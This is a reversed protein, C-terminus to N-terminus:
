FHQPAPSLGLVKQMIDVVAAAKWGTAICVLFALLAPIDLLLLAM